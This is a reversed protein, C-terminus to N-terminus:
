KERTLVLPGKYNPQDWQGTITDGTIEAVYKAGYAIDLTLKSGELTAQKIAHSMKQKTSEFTGQSRGQADTKFTFVVPLNNLTGNWRGELQKRAAAPLNLYTEAVVYKGKKFVIPLSNGMQNWQAAIENGKLTGSIKTRIRPLLISFEAGDLAADQTEWDKVGQEPVDFTGQLAGNAGASFHLVITVTKGTPITMTGVWDGRLTDINAKTLPKREFRQLSLPLKTGEQSWEGAIVGNSLTGAYGGSLSPVDLKLQNNAFTVNSAPENKIAGDDPSTVVATYGGDPKATIVFQITLSQGPAVELKGQWTGSLNTQEAATAALATWALLSLLTKKMPAEM